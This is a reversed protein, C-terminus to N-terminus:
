IWKNRHYPWSVLDTSKCHHETRDSHNQFFLQCWHVSMFHLPQKRNVDLFDNRVRTICDCNSWKQDETVAVNRSLQGSFRAPVWTFFPLSVPSHALSALDLRLESCCPSCCFFSPAYFPPSHFFPNRLTALSFSNTGLHILPWNVKDASLSFDPSPTSIPHLALAKEWQWCSFCPSSLLHPATIGATPLYGCFVVMGLQALEGEAAPSEIAGPWRCQSSTPLLKSPKGAGQKVQKPLWDKLM